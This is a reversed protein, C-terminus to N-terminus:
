ATLTAYDDAVGDASPHLQRPARDTDIHGGLWEGERRVLGDLLAVVTMGADGNPEALAQGLIAKVKAPNAPEALAMDWMGFIRAETHRAELVIVSGHRRDRQIREFTRQVVDLPGELVQAFSGDSYILAGTVGDRANNARSAALINAIEGVPDGQRTDITNSSCYVLRFIGDTM